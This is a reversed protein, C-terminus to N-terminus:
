LANSICRIPTCRAHPPELVVVSNICNICYLVVSNVGNCLEMASLVLLHPGQAPSNATTHGPGATYFRGVYCSEAWQIVVGNVSQHCCWQVSVACAGACWGRRSMRERKSEQERQSTFPLPASTQAGKRTPAPRLVTTSRRCRSSTFLLSLSEPPLLRRPWVPWRLATGHERLASSHEPQVAPTSARELSARRSTWGAGPVAPCAYRRTVLHPPLPPGCQDARGRERTPAPRSTAAITVLDLSM